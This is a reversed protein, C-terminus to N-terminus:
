NTEVAKRLKYITFFNTKDNQNVKKHSSLVTKVKTKTLQLFLDIIKYYFRDFGIKSKLYNFNIKKVKYIKDKYPTSRKIKDDFM